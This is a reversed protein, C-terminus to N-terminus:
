PEAWDMRRVYVGREALVPTSRRQLVAQLVALDRELDASGYGPVEVTGYRAVNNSNVLVHTVGLERLLTAVSDPDGARHIQQMVDFYYSVVYDLGRFFYGRPEYVLLLRHGAGLLPRLRRAAVLAPEQAEFGEVSLGGVAYGWHYPLRAVPAWLGHALAGLPVLWGVVAVGPHLAALARLTEDWGVGAAVAGLALAPLLYRPEQSTYFWSLALVAAALLVGRLAPARRARALVLAAALGAVCFPGVRFGFTGYDRGARVTLNLPLAALDFLGRGFGIRRVMAVQQELAVPDFFEQGPEHFLGQLAPALPNGTFALNRAM